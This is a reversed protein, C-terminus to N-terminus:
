SGLSNYACQDAEADLQEGENSGAIYIDNITLGKAAQKDFM